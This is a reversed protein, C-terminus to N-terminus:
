RRYTQDRPLVRLVEISDGHNYFRVRHNGVRLRFEPPQIATLQRVDGEEHAIYRALGELIRLATQQEIRRVDSRAQATWVLRKAM